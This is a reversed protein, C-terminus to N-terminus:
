IHGVEEQLMCHLDEEQKLYNKVDRLNRKYVQGIWTPEMDKEIRRISEGLATIRESLESLRALHDRTKGM